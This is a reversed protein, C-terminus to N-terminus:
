LHIPDLRSDLVSNIRHWVYWMVFIDFLETIMQAFREVDAVIIGFYIEVYLEM